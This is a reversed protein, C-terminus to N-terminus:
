SSFVSIVYRIGYWWCAGVGLLLAWFLVAIAARPKKPNIYSMEDGM